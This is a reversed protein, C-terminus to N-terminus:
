KKMSMETSILHQKGTSDTLTYNTNININGSWNINEDEIDLDNEEDYYSEPCTTSTYEGLDDGEWNLLNSIDNENSITRPLITPYTEVCDINETKGNYTYDGKIHQTGAKYDYTTVGDFSANIGKDDKVSGDMVETKILQTIDLSTINDDLKYNAITFGNITQCEVKIDGDSYYKFDLTSGAMILEKPDCSVKTTIPTWNTITNNNTTPNAITASAATDTTNSEADKNSSSSSGCGSLLLIATAFSIIVLKNM